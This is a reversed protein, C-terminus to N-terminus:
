VSSLPYPGAYDLDKPDLDDPYPNLPLLKRQLPDFVLQYLFTNEARFFGEVYDDPVVLNSMRLISPIKRIVQFYCNELSYLWLDLFPM